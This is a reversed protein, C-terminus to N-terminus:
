GDALAATAAVAPATNTQTEASRPPALAPAAPRPTEQPTVSADQAHRLSAIEARLAANSRAAADAEEALRQARVAQIDLQAQLDSLRLSAMAEADRAAAAVNDFRSRFPAIESRSPVSGDRAHRAALAFLDGALLDIEPDTATLQQGGHVADRRLRAAIAEAADHGAPMDAVVSIRMLASDIDDIWDPFLILARSLGETDDLASLLYHIWMLYAADAGIGHRRALSTAAEGPHRLNILAGVPGIQELAARWAPMLLTLRPDKIAIRVAAGFSDELAQHMANQEPAIEIRGIRGWWAGKRALLGDNLRVMAQPEHPASRDDGTTPDIADGPLAFGVAEVALALASAGSRPLGLIILIRDRQTM